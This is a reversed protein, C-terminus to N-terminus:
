RYLMTSDVQLAVVNSRNANPLGLVILSLSLALTRSPLIWRRSVVRSFNLRSRDVGSPSCKEVRDTHENGHFWTPLDETSKM